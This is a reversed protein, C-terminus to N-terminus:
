PGVAGFPQAAKGRATSCEPATLDCLQKVQPTPQWSFPTCKGRDDVTAGDGFTADRSQHNFHHGHQGVLADVRRVEGRRANHAVNSPVLLYVPGVSHSDRM